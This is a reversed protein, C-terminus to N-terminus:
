ADDPKADGNGAPGEAQGNPPLSPQVPGNVGNRAPRGAGAKAFDDADFKDGLYKQRAQPDSVLEHSTGSTLINGEDIIYSRDTVELTDRVNHDTLLIGIGKDRLSRIITQIDAVAIPDVGSFPEDLLILAPNTCLARSIELRRREGGSLTYAKSTRVKTLGFEDILGDLIEKRERLAYRMTELIAMINDQVTMRQFVSPSQSLYGMGMRARVYMPRDTVDEDLLYVIGADPKIMGVTMRFATTKGAGNQGLLGVIEGRDVEFDVGNVVKRRNYIKTLGRVQLLM